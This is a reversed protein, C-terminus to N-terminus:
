EIINKILNENCSLLNIWILGFNNDKILQRYRCKEELYYFYKVRCKCTECALLTISDKLEIFSHGLIKKNYSIFLKNM